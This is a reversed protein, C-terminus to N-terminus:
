EGLMAIGGVTIISFMATVWTAVAVVTWGYNYIDSIPRKQKMTTSVSQFQRGVLDDKDVTKFPSIGQTIASLQL